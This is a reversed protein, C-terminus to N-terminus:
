TEPPGRFLRRWCSAEGHGVRGCLVLVKGSRLPTQLLRALVALHRARAIETVERGDRDAAAQNGAARRVDRRHQPFRDGIRQAEIPTCGEAASAMASRRPASVVVQAQATSGNPATIIAMAMAPPKAILPQVQVMLGSPGLNSTRLGKDPM